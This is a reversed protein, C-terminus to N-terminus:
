KGGKKETKKTVVELRTGSENWQKSVITYGQLMLDECVATTMDSKEFTFTTSQETKRPPVKLM